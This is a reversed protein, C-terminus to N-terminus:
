SCQLGALRNSGLANVPGAQHGGSIESLEFALPELPDSAKAIKRQGM